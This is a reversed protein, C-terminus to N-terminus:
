FLAAMDGIDQTTGNGATGSAGNVVAALAEPALRQDDGAEGRLDKLVVVGAVAEDDGIVAAWRAGSKDARKFQKGFAAGSLDLEVALGALRMAPWLPRSGLWGSSNGASTSAPRDQQTAM